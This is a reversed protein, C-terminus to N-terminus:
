IDGGWGLSKYKFNKQTAVLTMGETPFFSEKEKPPIFSGKGGLPSKSKLAVATVQNCLSEHLEKCGSLETIGVGPPPPLLDLICM